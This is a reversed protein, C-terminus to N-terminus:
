KTQTKESSSSQPTSSNKKIDVKLESEAIDILKELYEIKIQKEGLMAKLTQIENQLEKLKKTKSKSHEVIRYGKDNFKSYKYIWSYILQFALNNQISLEKVSSRGSEYEVVISRKFEKSYRRYKKVKRISPRM